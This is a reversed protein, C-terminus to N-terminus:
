LPAPQQESAWVHYVSVIQHTQTPDDYFDYSSVPVINQIFIDESLAPDSVFGRYGQIALRVTVDLRKALGYNSFGQATSFISFTSRALGTSGRNSLQDIHESGTLRYAIAPYNCTQPLVPCYIRGAVLAVVDAAAVLIFGLAQEVLMVGELAGLAPLTMSVPLAPLTM